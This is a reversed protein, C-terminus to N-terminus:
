IKGEDEKDLTDQKNGSIYENEVRFVLWQIRRFVEITQLLWSWEEPYQHPSIGFAWSLRGFGNTVMAIYYWKKGAFLMTPRLGSSTQCLGWDMVIDWIYCYLMKVVVAVLWVNGYPGKGKRSSGHYFNLANTGVVALASVYKFANVLHQHAQWGRKKQSLAYVYQSVCQVFRLWFPFAAALPVAIQKYLSEEGGCKEEAFEQTDWLTLAVTCIGYQLRYLATGASTLLDAVVSDVFTFEYCFPTSLCRLLTRRLFYRSEVYPLQPAVFFGIHALLTILLLLSAIGGDSREQPFRWTIGFFIATTLLQFAALM